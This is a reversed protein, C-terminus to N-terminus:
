LLSDIYAIFGISGIPSESDTHWPTNGIYRIGKAQTPLVPGGLLTEALNGARDLLSLGFATEATMMPVYQFNIGGDHATQRDILGLRMVQDIENALLAADFCQRVVVFGFTRLIDALPSATKFDM